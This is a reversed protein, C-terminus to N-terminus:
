FDAVQGVSEATCIDPVADIKRERRATLLKQRIRKQTQAGINATKL